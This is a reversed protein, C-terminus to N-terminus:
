PVDLRGTLGEWLPNSANILDTQQLGPGGYYSVAVGANGKSAHEAVDNETDLLVVSATTSSLRAAVACGLVGGGIVVVDLSPTTSM